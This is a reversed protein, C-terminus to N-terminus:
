EKRIKLVQGIRINNSTLGNIQKIESVPVQYQRFLSFLTEGSKVTHTLWSTTKPAPNATPTIVQPKTPEPKTTVPPVEAPGATTVPSAPPQYPTNPLKEVAEALLVNLEADTVAQHIMGDPKVIFMGPLSKHPFARKLFNYDDERPILLHEWPMQYRALDKEWKSQIKEVSISVFRIPKNPYAAQLEKLNPISYLSSSNWGAWFFVVWAQKQPQNKFNICQDLFRQYTLSVDPSYDQAFLHISGSLIALLAFTKFKKNM